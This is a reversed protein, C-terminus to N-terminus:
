AQHGGTRVKFDHLLKSLYCNLFAAANLLLWLGFFAIGYSKIRFLGVDVNLHLSIALDVPDIFTFFLFVLAASVIASAWIFSMVCKCKPTVKM